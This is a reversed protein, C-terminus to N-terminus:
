IITVKKVKFAERNAKCWVGYIERGYTKDLYDWAEKETKVIIGTFQLGNEYKYIGFM